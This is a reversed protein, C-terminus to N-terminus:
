KLLSMKKVLRTADARLEYFYVGSSLQAANFNVTYAGASKYENVLTAVKEGVINYITLSVQSNSNLTFAIKTSPNFPNPYNQSLTFETPQTAILSELGTVKAASLVILNSVDPSSFTVTNNDTDVTADITYWSEALDDWGNVVIKSEDSNYMEMQLDSYHFSYDANNGLSMKRGMMMNTSMLMNTGDSNLMNIEYSAFVNMGNRNSINEPAIEFLQCFLSDPLHSNGGMHGTGNSKNWGSHLKIQDGSDFPSHFTRSSDMTGNAWGGGFHSGISSSDRWLLGDIEYVIIMPEVMSTELQGGVISVVDGNVPRIAGSQPQFWFPGFNLSYDPTGDNNTDLYYHNMYFTTDVLTTGTTTINTLSDHEWGFGYNSRRNHHNRM